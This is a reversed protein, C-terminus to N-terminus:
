TYGSLSARLVNTLISFSSLQESECSPVPSFQSTTSILGHKSKRGGINEVVSTGCCREAHQRGQWAVPEFELVCGFLNRSGHSM